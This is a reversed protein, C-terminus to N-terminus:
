IRISLFSGPEPPPERRPPGLIIIEIDPTNGTHNRDPTVHPSGNTKKPVYIVLANSPTAESKTLVAETTKGENQTRNAEDNNWYDADSLWIRSTTKVQLFPLNNMILGLYAELRSNRGKTVIQEQYSRKVEMCMTRIKEISNKDQAKIMNFLLNENKEGITGLIEIIVDTKETQLLSTVTLALAPSAEITTPLKKRFSLITLFTNWYYPLVTLSRVMRALREKGGENHKAMENFHELLSACRNITLAGIEEVGHKRLKAEFFTVDDILAQIKHQEIGLSLLLTRLWAMEEKASSKEGLKNDIMIIKFRMFRLGGTPKSSDQKEITKDNPKSFFKMKNKDAIKKFVSRATDSNSYAV